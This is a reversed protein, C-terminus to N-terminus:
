SWSLFLNRRNLSILQDFWGFSTFVLVKFSPERSPGTHRQHRHHSVTSHAELGFVFRSCWNKNLSPSTLTSFPSPLCSFPEFFLFNSRTYMIFYTTWGCVEENVRGKEGPCLPTLPNLPRSRQTAVSFPHHSNLRTLGLDTVGQYHRSGCESILKPFIRLYVNECLSIVWSKYSMLLLRNVGNVRALRTGCETDGTLKDDTNM